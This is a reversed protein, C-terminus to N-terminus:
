NLDCRSGLDVPVYSGFDSDHLPHCRVPIRSGERRGGTRDAFHVGVDSKKRHKPETRVEGM